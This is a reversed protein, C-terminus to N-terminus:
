KNLEGQLIIKMDALASLTQTLQSIIYRQKSETDVYGKFSTIKKKLSEAESIIERIHGWSDSLIQKNIVPLLIDRMLENYNEEVESYLKKINDPAEFFKDARKLLLRNIDVKYGSKDRYEREGRGYTIAYPKGPFNSEIKKRFELAKPDAETDYYLEYVKRVLSDFSGSGRIREASRYEDNLTKQLDDKNEYKKQRAAKKAFALFNDNAYITDALKKELAKVEDAISSKLNAIYTERSYAVADAKRESREKALPEFVPNHIILWNLTDYRERAANIMAPYQVKDILSVLLRKNYFIAYVEKKNRLLIYLAKPDSDSNRYVPNEISAADKILEYTTEPANAIFSKEMQQRTAFQISSIISSVARSNLNEIKADLSKM